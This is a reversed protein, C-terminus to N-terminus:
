STRATNKCLGAALSGDFFDRQTIAQAGMRGNKSATTGNPSAESM